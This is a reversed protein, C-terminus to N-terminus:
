RLRCLWAQWHRQLRVELLVITEPWHALPPIADALQLVEGLVRDQTQRAIQSVAGQVSVLPPGGLLTRRM